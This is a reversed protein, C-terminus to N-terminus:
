KDMESDFVDTVKADFANKQLVSVGEITTGGPSCVMDVLEWPHCDSSNVLKASGLVLQTATKYASKREMGNEISAQALADIISYTYAKITNEVTEYADKNGVPYNNM